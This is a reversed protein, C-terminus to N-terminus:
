KIQHLFTVIKPQRSSLAKWTGLVSIIHAFRAKSMVVVIVEDFGVLTSVPLILFGLKQMKSNDYLESLKTDGGNM